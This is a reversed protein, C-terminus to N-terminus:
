GDPAVEDRPASSGDSSALLTRELYSPFALASQFMEFIEETTMDVPFNVYNGHVLQNRTHGLKLFAKISDGLAVSQKVDKEAKGSYEDGFLAFFSNANKAEWNFYTHYQRSIAKREILACIFPHKMAHKRPVERVLDTVRHEFYSAIALVLSRRFNDAAANAFSIEKRDVLFKYMDQHVRFFPEIPTETM